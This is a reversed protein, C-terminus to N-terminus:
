QKECEKKGRNWPGPGWEKMSEWREREDKGGNGGEASM